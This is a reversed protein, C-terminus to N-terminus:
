KDEEVTYGDLWARAFDKTHNRLWDASNGTMLSLAESASAEGTNALEIFDAIKKPIVPLEAYTQKFVDDAIEWREGNVGTAIWDGVHVLLDGELTKIIAGGKGNPALQFGMDYREIMENSGDFQEASITATKRYVKIM